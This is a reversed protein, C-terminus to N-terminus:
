LRLKLANSRKNAYIIFCPRGQKAAECNHSITSDHEKVKDVTWKGKIDQHHDQYKRIIGICDENARNWHIDQWWM